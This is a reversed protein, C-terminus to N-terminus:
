RYQNHCSKQATEYTKRALEKSKNDESITLDFEFAIEAKRMCGAFSAPPSEVAQPMVPKQFYIDHVAIFIMVAVVLAILIWELKGFKKGM